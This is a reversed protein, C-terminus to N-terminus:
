RLTEQRSLKPIVRTVVSPAGDLRQLLLVGVVAHTHQAAVDVGDAPAIVAVLQVRHLAVVWVCVRPFKHRGQLSFYSNEPNFSSYSTISKSGVHHHWMSVVHM